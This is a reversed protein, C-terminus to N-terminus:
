GLSRVLFRRVDVHIVVRVIVRFTEVEEPSQLFAGIVKFSEGAMHFGPCCPLGRPGLDVVRGSQQVTDLQAITRCEHNVKPSVGPDVKGVRQGLM